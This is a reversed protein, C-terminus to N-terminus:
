SKLILELSTGTGIESEIKLDAKMEKSRNKMNNLGNGNHPMSTDFGKGNDHITLKIFSNIKELQISVITADAYKIINNISEKFILFFNRRKEISLKINNLSEDALFTFEINKARFLNFALSRMRLIINEFSDNEPNITWVIDSMSDIIKRSAEGIMELAQAQKETDLKAVASYVSISNLTSGIDDHLDGSIKNRINQLRVIERLRIRYGAYILGAIFVIMLTRFWWTQWMPPTIILIMETPTENWIGDNNSAKVHFIYKGPDLNTYNAFRKSADTYIWDKDYNELKYAYHNKEPHIFSLASYTFTFNNQRYSLKIEKTEDAPLKLIGTSDNPMIIKNFLSFDTILVPPIFTNDKLDDPKFTVVGANSGFYLTGDDGKVCTNNYYENGPLGDSMNYNRCIAKANILDPPTFRCIGEDGSLWLNGNNDAVIGTVSNGPLGDRTTYATFQKNKRDFSNLGASTGVWIIGKGDDYFCNVVNNSISNSNGGDHMFNELGGTKTNLLKLGGAAGGFWLIGDQDFYVCEIDGESLHKKDNYLKNFDLYTKTKLDFCKLGSNTGLWLQGTNDEAICNIQNYAVTDANNSNSHWITFLGSKLDLTHLGDTSTGVWLRGDAAEFICYCANFYHGKNQVKNFLYTKFEGTEPALLKVGAGFTGILINGEHNKYLELPFNTVYDSDFNQQYIMFKKDGHDLTNLGGGYTAIWLVGSRDEYLSMVSNNGLTHEDKNDALYVKFNDTNPQYASLGSYTAIWITNNHDETISNVNNGSLSNPDFESHLYHKVQGNSPNLCAVGQGDIYGIWIKGSHDEYLCNQGNNLAFKNQDDPKYALFKNHVPDFVNVGKNTGIWLSGTHDMMLSFITKSCLTDPLLHNKGYDIFHDTDPDYWCLGADNTGIWISGNQGAVICNVADSSLAYEDKDDHKYTLFNGTQSNYKTLPGVTSVMWINGNSDECIQLVDNDPLSNKNGSEFHFTTFAYGDFKILGNTTGFWMYGKRDQLISQFHNQSLNHEASFHNFQITQQAPLSSVIFYTFLFFIPQIFYTRLQKM